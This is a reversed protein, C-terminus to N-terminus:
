AVRSYYSEEDSYSNEGLLEKADALLKVLDQKSNLQNRLSKLEKEQSEILRNQDKVKAELRSTLGDLSRLKTTLNEYRAAQDKYREALMRRQAESEELRGQVQSITSKQERNQRMLDSMSKVVDNMFNDSTASSRYAGFDELDSDKNYISSLFDDEIMEKETSPIVEDSDLIGNNDKDVESAVTTPDVVNHNFEVPKEEVEPTPIVIDTSVEEELKTLEDNKPEEVVGVKEKAEDVPTEETEVVEEVPKEAVVDEKVEEKPAEEEAKVGEVSEQVEEPAVVPPTMAEEVSKNEEVSEEAPNEEVTKAIEEADVVPPQFPDEVKEVVEETKQESAPTTEELSEVPAEEKPPTEPEIPGGEGKFFDDFGLPPAFGKQLESPTPAEQSALAEETPAEAPVEEAKPTEEKVEDSLAGEVTEPAVAASAVDIVEESKKDEKITGDVLSFELVDSDAINKSLYLEDNAIGVYSYYEDNLLNKGDFDFVSAESFQDNVLFRGEPGMLANMKDKITASASVLKPATETDNKAEIADLVNQSTPVAKEVLLFKDNVPKIAKNEFPIVVKGDKDIIGIHTAKAMSDVAEVLATSAIRNGNEMKKEDNEDLFYYQLGDDAVGYTCVIDNRDKYKVIGKQIKM